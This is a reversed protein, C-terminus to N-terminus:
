LNAIRAAAQDWAELAAQLLLVQGPAPGTAVGGFSGQLRIARTAVELVRVDLMASALRERPVVDPMGPPPPEDPLGTLSLARWRGTVILDAGADAAAEAARALSILDDPHYGRARMAASVRQPDALVFRGAALTRLRDHLVRNLQLRVGLQADTGGTPFEVLAVVRLAQARSPASLTLAAIAALVLAVPRM